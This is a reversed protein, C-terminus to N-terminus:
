ENEGKSSLNLRNKKLCKHIQNESPFDGSFLIGVYKTVGDVKTTGLEHFRLELAPMSRAIYDFDHYDDVICATLFDKMTM